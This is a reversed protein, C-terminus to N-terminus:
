EIKQLEVDLAIVEVCGIDEIYTMFHRYGESSLGSQSSISRLESLWDSGIVECLADYNQEVHWETCFMESRKRVARQSVFRLVYGHAEEM